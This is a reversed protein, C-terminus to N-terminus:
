KKEKGGKKKGTQFTEKVPKEDLPINGTMVKKAIINPDDATLTFMEVSSGELRMESLLLPRQDIEWKFGALQIAAHNAKNMPYYKGDNKKYFKINDLENEVLRARLHSCSLTNVGTYEKDDNLTYYVTQANGVVTMSTLKSETMFANIEKGGIQSFYVDEPSTIIMAKNQLLLNSIKNDKQFILITDGFYQNTSDSWLIPEDYLRFVSDLTSYYLSDCVGQFNKSLIMVENFAQIIRSTDGSLSDNKFSLLTDASVYMTDDESVTRFMARKGYAKVYNGKKDIIAEESHLTSNNSKSHLIVNGKSIGKGSKNNFDNSDSEIINDKDEIRSRGSTILQDNKKDFQIMKGKLTQSSDQYFAFGKGGDIEFYDRSEFYKISEGSVFRLSDQFRADGLLFYYKKLGDYIMKKNAIAKDSGKQYQPNGSFEGYKKDIDYFGRESYLKTGNQQTIISPALFTVFRLRSNYKLRTTKIDFDPDQIYVKDQLVIDDSKTDYVAARSKVWTAGNTFTGNNDYTAIKSQTNYSLKETYLKQDGKIFSVNSYLVCQKTDSNYYLSDSFISLTDGQQILVNGKARIINDSRYVTDASFHVDKHSFAVEGTFISIKDKTFITGFKAEEFNIFDLTDPVIQGKLSNLSIGLIIVCSVAHRFNWWFPILINKSKKLSM